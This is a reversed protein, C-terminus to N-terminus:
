EQIHHVALEHHLHQNARYLGQAVLAALLCALGLLVLSRRLFMVKQHEERAVHTLRWAMYEPTTMTYAPLKDM